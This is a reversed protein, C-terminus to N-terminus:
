NQGSTRKYNNKKNHLLVKKKKGRNNGEQQLLQQEHYFTQPRSTSKPDLTYRQDLVTAKGKSIQIENLKQLIEILIYADLAGYHQQTLRLPRLEWNSM